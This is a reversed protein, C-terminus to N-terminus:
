IVRGVPSSVVVVEVEVEVVEESLWDESPLVALFSFLMSSGWVSGDLPGGEEEEEEERVLMQPSTSEEVEEM